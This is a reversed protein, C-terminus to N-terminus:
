LQLDSSLNFYRDILILDHCVNQIEYPLLQGGAGGSDGGCAVVKVLAVQGALSWGAGVVACVVVAECESEEVEDEKEDSEQGWAGCGGWSV